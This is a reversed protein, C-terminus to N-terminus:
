ILLAAHLYFLPRSSASREHAGAADSSHSVRPDSNSHIGPDAVRSGGATKREAIRETALSIETGRVALGTEDMLSLEFRADGSQDPISVEDDLRYGSDTRDATPAATIGLTLVVVIALLSAIRRWERTSPKVMPQISRNMKPRPVRLTNRLVLLGVGCVRAPKQM